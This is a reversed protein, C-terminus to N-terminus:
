EVFHCEFSTLYESHSCSFAEFITPCTDHTDTFNKWTSMLSFSSCIWCPCTKSVHSRLKQFSILDPRKDSTLGEGLGVQMNISDSCCYYYDDYYIIIIIISRLLSSSLLLSSVNVHFSAYQSPTCCFSSQKKGFCVGNGCPLCGGQKKRRLLKWVSNTSGVTGEKSKFFCKFWSDFFFKNNSEM